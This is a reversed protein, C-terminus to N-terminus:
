AIPVRLRYGIGWITEALSQQDDSLRLKQRLKCMHADVTRLTVFVGEKGWIQQLLDERRCVKGPSTILVTLLALEKPTLHLTRNGMRVLRRRSDIKLLGAFM